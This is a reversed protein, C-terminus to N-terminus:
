EVKITLKMKPHILCRVEHDGTAGFEELVEDGPKEIIGSKTAGSPDRITINHTVTDNNVFRIKDGKKITVSEQSFQKDQQGVSIEAAVASVALVPITLVVAVIVGTKM